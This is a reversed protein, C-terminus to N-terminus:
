KGICFRSFIETLVDEHTIEGTIESLHNTAVLLDAALLEISADQETSKVVENLTKVTKELCVKHRMNSIFLQDSSRGHPLAFDIIAQKLSPIGEETKASIVLFDQRSLLSRTARPTRIPLDTKNMVVVHPKASIEEYLRKDEDSAPESQDMVFLILDAREVEQWSRRVGEAEVEGEGERLGATDCLRVLIGGFQVTETV